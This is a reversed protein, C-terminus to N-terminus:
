NAYKRVSGAMAVVNEVKAEDTIGIAGDLIFGGGKGVKQILNRCYEDVDDPTGTNLLSTPVNGRLCVIDGLVEKAKIIDTREFWYIAKGPPIDAIIELRSTCDGEWLINPVLDREILYMIVNKLEPWYFTNFQDPSMFGDLGWHLPMFVYRCGSKRTTAEVNRLLLVRAKAMAELLKDRNQFMDIMCGKSGRLFDSFLDYPAKTFAGDILPYGADKMDHMYTGMQRLTYATKEGVEFLRQMGAQFVPNAFGSAAAILDWEATAPFDPFQELIGYAGALRPLYKKLYFGTPDFLYEDYEDATMFEQDLYQFTANADTGHGPWRMPKFDLGELTHGFAFLLASYADPQLMDIAQKSVEIYKDVDFMIDQITFGQLRAAWFTSFYVFPVRDTEHLSIADEIRQSREDFLHINNNDNM